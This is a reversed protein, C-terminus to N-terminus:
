TNTLFIINMKGPEELLKLLSNSSAITLRSINEILFIQFPYPPKSYSLEVFSKVEKIKIKETNDEFIYLYTYPIQFKKLAEKSIAKIKDNVLEINQGVFLFPSVEEGNIIKTELSEVFNNFM